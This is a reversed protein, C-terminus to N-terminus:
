LSTIDIYIQLNNNKKKHFDSGRHAPHTKRKCQSRDEKTHEITYSKDAYKPFFFNNARGTLSRFYRRLTNSIQETRKGEKATATPLLLPRDRAIICVSAIVFLLSAAEHEEQRRGRERERVDGLFVSLTPRPEHDTPSLVHKGWTQKSCM